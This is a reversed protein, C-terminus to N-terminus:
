RLTLKTLYTILIWMSNSLHYLLMTTIFYHINEVLYVIEDRRHELLKSKMRGKEFNLIHENEKSPDFYYCKGEDTKKIHVFSRWLCLCMHCASYRGVLVNLSHESGPFDTNKSRLNEQFWAFQFAKGHSYSFSPLFNLYYLYNILYNMVTLFTLNSLPRYYTQFTM